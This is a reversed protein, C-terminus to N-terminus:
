VIIYLISACVITRYRGLWSDAVASGLLPLLLATGLWANVAAAASSTSQGLPGTLYIMLNGMVGFFAFREAAEV